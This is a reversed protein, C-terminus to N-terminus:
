DANSVASYEDLKEKYRKLITPHVEAWYEKTKSWKDEGFKEKLKTVAEALEGIYVVTRIAKKEEPTLEREKKAKVEEVVPLVEPVEEKAPAYTEAMKEKYKQEMAEARKASELEKIRNELVRIKAESDSIVPTDGNVKEAEKKMRSAMKAADHNMKTEKFDESAEIEKALKEIEKNIEQDDIKWPENKGLKAFALKRRNFQDPDDPLWAEGEGFENGSFILHHEPSPRGDRDTAWAPFIRRSVNPRSDINIRVTRFGRVEIDGTTKPSCSGRYVLRILNVGAKKAYDRRQENTLEKKSMSPILVLSSM